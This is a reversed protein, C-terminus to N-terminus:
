SRCRTRSGFCPGNASGRARYQEVSARAGRRNRRTWPAGRTQLTVLAADRPKLRALAAEYLEIQEGDLVRELPSLGRDAHSTRSRSRNRSIAGPECTLRHHPERLITRLYALLAGPHRCEFADLKNMGRQVAELVVDQTDLM